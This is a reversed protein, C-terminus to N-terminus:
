RGVLGALLERLAWKNGSLAESTPIISMMVRGITWDSKPPTRYGAPVPILKLENTAALRMARQMHLASTVLGVRQDDSVYDPLNMMEESTNIGPSKSIVTEPVGLQSLIRYGHDAPNPNNRDLEKIKTGTCIIKDVLGEHYMRAALVIRNSFVNVQSEGNAGQSCGGGLVVLVDFPEETELPRIDLYDAELHHMLVGYLHGSGLTTISLLALLAVLFLPSSKRDRLQLCLFILTLWIVGCPMALHLLTKEFVVRGAALHVAGLYLSGVAIMFLLTSFFRGWGLPESTKGM